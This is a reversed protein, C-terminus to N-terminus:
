LSSRRLRYLRKALEAKRQRRRELEEEYEKLAKHSVFYVVIPRGLRLVDRAKLVGARRLEMIYHKTTNESGLLMLIENYAVIRRKELFRLLKDKKKM